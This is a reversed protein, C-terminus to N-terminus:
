VRITDVRKGMSEAYERACRVESSVGDDLLVVLDVEAVMARMSAFAVGRDSLFPKTSVILKPVRHKDAWQNVKRCVGPMDTTVVETIGVPMFADIARRFDVPGVIAVRM